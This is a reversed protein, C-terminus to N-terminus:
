TAFAVPNGDAPLRSSLTMDRERWGRTLVYALGILFSFMSPLVFRPEYHILLHAGISYLHPSLLLFILGFRRRECFLMIISCVFGAFGVIGMFLWDWYAKLVYIPKSFVVDFRDKGKDMSHSFRSTKLPNKFGFSQTGIIALPIRKAVATMYGWPKSKVDEWFIKQFYLDAESSAPSSFGQEKAEIYRYKDLGNIGWANNYTGLGDILTWGMSTSTFIWRGCVQHNRYAWPMLVILAILQITATALMSRWFRRTYLWLSFGYAVPVLLFDPRLYSSIGVMAGALIWWLAAKKGSSRTSQLVCALSAVIFVPLLGEPARYITSAYALPPYFAYILGSAFGVRRSLFTAVMWYLICAAATDFLMGIIEFFLDVRMGTLRHLAAVLLAMGPPHLMEPLLKSSEIQPATQPTVRVGQDVLDMIKQLNDSPEENSVEFVYGYGACIMYGEQFYVISLSDPELTYCGTWGWFIFLLRFLLAASAVIIMKRTTM